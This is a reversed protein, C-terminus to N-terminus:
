HASTPSRVADRRGTVFAWQVLERYVTWPLPVGARDALAVLPAALRWLPTELRLRRPPPTRPLRPDGALEPQRALLDGFTRGVERQRALFAPLTTPHHHRAAADARYVIPLGAAQLRAGLEIDEWGYARFSEDFPFALAVRRPLSVNSTYFHGFGVEAGDVMRDWAFQAGDRQVFDLFPSVRMTDHDWWAPGVVAADLGLSSHAALHAAVCGPAPRVDDGLLLVLDGSARAIGRNRAAGQGAHGQRVSVVPFPLPREDLRRALAERTGDTSGDDVVVLELVPRSQAALADLTAALVQWRNRTPIVVSITTCSPPSAVDDGILEIRRVAAGEARGSAGVASPSVIRLDLLGDPGATAPLAATTWCDAAVTVTAATQGCSVTVESRGEGGARLDLELRGAARGDVRLLARAAGCTVRVPDGDLVEPGYWGWGLRSEASPRGPDLRPVALWQAPDPLDPVRPLDPTPPPLDRALILGRAVLESHDRRRARQLRRRAVLTSPLRALNWAAADLALVLAREALLFRSLGALSGVAERWPAHKLHSRVAHRLGLRARRGRGRPGAASGLFRHRVVADRCAVVRRGLLWLRWGLDVDEHYMFFAPDFGGLALFEDRRMAMAAGSPFLCEEHRQRRELLTRPLGFLRDVGHGLRAMAGGLANLVQPHDLLVLAACTAAVEPDRELPELLADLWGPEPETDNNLLVLFRGRAAEAGTRNAAGFGRNRDHRLVRVEPHAAALWDATGDSSADDVVVVETAGSTTQAVAPLCRELHRRGDHSAIVISTRPPGTM